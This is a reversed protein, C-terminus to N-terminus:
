LLAILQRCQALLRGDPSWMDRLEEVYGDDAWRSSIQVLVHDEAALGAGASASVGGGGFRELFDIRFDVSALARPETFTAILAPPLADILFAALAADYSEPERLRVWAAIEARAAGSYPLVDGCYRVDLHRVFAPVGALDAPLATLERAPPVIPMAGAVHRAVRDRAKCFSATALTTVDGDCLVRALCTTIRKGAREISTRVEIPGATAPGCFHMTLSRPVRQEDAVDAKMASLVLATLLGGFAGRGQYWSSDIRGTRLGERVSELETARGYATKM